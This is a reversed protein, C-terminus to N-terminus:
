NIQFQQGISNHCSIHSCMEQACKFRTLSDHQVLLKELLFNANEFEVHQNKIKCKKEKEINKECIRNVYDNDYANYGSLM